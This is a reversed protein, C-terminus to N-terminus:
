SISLSPQPQTQELDMRQLNYDISQGLLIGGVIILSVACMSLGFLMALATMTPEVTTTILAFYSVCGALTTTASAILGMPHSLASLLFYDFPEKDSCYRRQALSLHPKIQQYEDGWRYFFHNRYLTNIHSTGLAQIISANENASLGSMIAHCVHSNSVLERLRKKGLAMLVVAREKEHEHLLGLCMRLDIHNQVLNNIAKEPLSEIFLPWKNKDVRSLFQILENMTKIPYNLTGDKFNKIFKGYTENTLFQTIIFLSECSFYPNNAIHNKLADLGETETCQKEHMQQLTFALHEASKLQSPIFKNKAFQLKYQTGPHLFLLAWTLDDRTNIFRNLTKEGLCDLIISHLEKNLSKFVVSLIEASDISDILLKRYKSNSCILVTSEQLSLTGLFNLVSNTNSRDSPYKMLLSSLQGPELEKIAKAYTEPFRNCVLEGVICEQEQADRYEWGLASLLQFSSSANEARALPTTSYLIASALMQKIEKEKNIAALQALLKRLLDARLLDSLKVLQELAFDLSYLDACNAILNFNVLSLDQTLGLHHLHSLISDFKEGADYFHPTDSGELFLSATQGALDKRQKKYAEHIDAHLVNLSTIQRENATKNTTVPLISLRLVQLVNSSLNGCLEIFQELHMNLSDLDKHKALVEVDDISLSHLIGVQYFHHLVSDFLEGPKDQMTERHLSYTNQLNGWQLADSVDHFPSEQFSQEFTLLAYAFEKTQKSTLVIELTRNQLSENFQLTYSLNIFLHLANELSHLDHHNILANFNNVVAPSGLLGTEYLLKIISNLKEDAQYPILKAAKDKIHPSDGIYCTVTRKKELLLFVNGKNKETLLGADQLYRYSAIAGDPLNILAADSLWQQLQNEHEFVFSNPM